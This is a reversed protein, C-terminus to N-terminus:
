RRSEQRYLVVLLCILALQVPKDLAALPSVDGFSRPQNLVYWLVIQATVFPVGLALVLQRRYELVYLIIGVGFGVAALIAAIGLPDPLAGIGLGLHVLGSVAALAMAVREVRSLAQWRVEDWAKM